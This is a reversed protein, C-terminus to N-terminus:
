KLNIKELKLELLKYFFNKRLINKKLLSMYFIKYM